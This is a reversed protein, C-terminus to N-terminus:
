DESFSFADQIARVSSGTFALRTLVDELASRVYVTLNPLDGRKISRLCTFLTGRLVLYTHLAAKRAYSASIGPMFRWSDVYSHYIDELYYVLSSPFPVSLLGLPALFGGVSIVWPHAGGVVEVETNNSQSNKEEVCNGENRENKFNEVLDVTTSGNRGRKTQVCILGEDTMTKLVIKLTSVACGIRSAIASMAGVLTKERKLLDLLDDKWEAIHVRQRAERPRRPTFFRYRTYRYSFAMGTLEEVAEVCPGHMRKQKYVYRVKNLADSLTFAKKGDNSGKVCCEHWWEEIEALTKELSYGSFKMALALTFCSVDRKGFGAEQNYLQRIAPEDMLNYNEFSPRAFAPVYPHNINRWDVFFQFDYRIPQFFCISDEKPTRFIREVGIAHLDAGLDEAVHRQIAEFLRVTKPTARVPQVSHDLVWKVHFGGSPTRNILTPLPLGAEDCRDFIEAVTVIENPQPDIDVVLANIWRANDACRGDNRYFANPTYYASDFSDDYLMSFFTLFTAAAKMHHKSGLYVWPREQDYSFTASKKSRVRQRPIERMFPEYLLRFYQEVKTQPRSHPFITATALAQM